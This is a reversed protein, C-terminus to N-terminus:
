VAPALLEVRTYVVRFGLREMNRQSSSGPVSESVAYTCGAERALLIREIQLASQVGRKRFDPLTADAMLWGFERDVLLTGTGVAEGAIKGLLQVCDRRQAAIQALRVHAPEAPGPATFARMSVDAWVSREAASDVRSVVVDRPPDPLEAGHLPLVLVNEFGTAVWGRRALHAVLTSDALPCLSLAARAGREAYFSELREVESASVEGSFGLGYAMNVPSGQGLFVARGGAIALTESPEDPAVEAAKEAYRSVDRAVSAELAAALARDAHLPV